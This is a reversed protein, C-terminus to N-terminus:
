PNVQFSTDGEEFFAIIQRAAAAGANFNAEATQAGLKKATFFARDGFKEMITAQNSPAVDAAYKFDTREEFVRLLDDENIIEARATNILCAGKNM